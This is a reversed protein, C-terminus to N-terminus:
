DTGHIGFSENNGDKRQKCLDAYTAMCVVALNRQRRTMNEYDCGVIREIEAREPSNPIMAWMAIYRATVNGAM